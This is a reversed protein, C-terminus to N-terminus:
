PTLIRLTYDSSIASDSGPPGFANYEFDFKYHYRVTSTGAPVPLLGEFRNTMISAPRMPYYDNGVVIQPRISQWRLSQQNSAIAAEVQYLNNTNRIQQLPTLNTIVMPSACGGLLAAVSLLLLNKLM